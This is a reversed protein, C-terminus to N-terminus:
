TEQKVKITEHGTNPTKLKAEGTRRHRIGENDRQTNLVQTKRQKNSIQRSTM